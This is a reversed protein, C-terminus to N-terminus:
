FDFRFDFTLCIFQFIDKIWDISFDRRELWYINRDMEGIEDQITRLFPFRSWASGAGFFEKLQLIMERHRLFQGKSPFAPKVQLCEDLTVSRLGKGEM